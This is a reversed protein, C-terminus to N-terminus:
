EDDPRLGAESARTKWISANRHQHLVAIVVVREARAVFYIAYPFRRLLARRVDPAVEPFHLPFGVIRAQVDDLADLFRPGLGRVQREYWVVVSEVDAEAELRVVLVRSM